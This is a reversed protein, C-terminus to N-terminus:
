QSLRALLSSTDWRGGGARQVDEYFKDVLTAVPAESEVRKAERLAIGLDKRMWDVAFGFDYQGAAMTKWRNSLQWSGAAGESITDMVAPIDLGSKQALSMGEALGQIIGAICLQNVMKATQGSGVDGIRTIKHGFCRVIPLVHDYAAKSSGIMVTLKGNEAGAQGGSVPADLYSFGLETARTGLERALDASTTTCDVYCTGPSMTHFAGSAGTTVERLDDDNGVCSFVVEAGNAADKPSSAFEGGYTRCWSEAKTSTRNFVTVDHGAQLLHGAMPYGMVGLGIWAIKVMM